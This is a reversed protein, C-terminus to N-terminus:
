NPLRPPAACRRVSRLLLLYRRAGSLRPARKMRRGRPRRGSGDSRRSWTWLRAIKRLRHGGRTRPEHKASRRTGRAAAQRIGHPGFRRRNRVRGVAASRGRSARRVLMAASGRAGARPDVRVQSFLKRMRVLRCLVITRADAAYGERSASTTGALPVGARLMCVCATLMWLVASPVASHRLSAAAGERRSSIERRSSEM